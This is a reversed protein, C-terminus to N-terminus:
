MIIVQTWLTPKDANLVVTLSQQVSHQKKGCLSQLLAAQVHYKEIVSSHMTLFCKLVQLVDVGAVSAVIFCLLWDPQHKNKKLFTKIKGEQWTFLVLACTLSVDRYSGRTDNVYQSISQLFRIMVCLVCLCDQVTHNKKLIVLANRISNLTPNGLDSSSGQPDFEM